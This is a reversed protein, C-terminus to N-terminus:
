DAEDEDSCCHQFIEIRQEYLKRFEADMHPLMVRLVNLMSETWDDRIHPPKVANFITRFAFYPAYGDEDRPWALLLADIGRVHCMSAMWQAVAEWHAETITFECERDRCLKCYFQWVLHQQEKAESCLRWCPYDALGRERLALAALEFSEPDDERLFNSSKAQNAAPVSTSEAGIGSGGSRKRKRKPKRRAQPVAMAGRQDQVPPESPEDGDMRELSPSLDFPENNGGMHHGLDFGLDLDPAPAEDQYYASASAAPQEGVQPSEGQAAPAAEDQDASGGVGDYQQQQQQPRPPSSEDHYADQAARREEVLDILNSCSTKCLGSDMFTLLMKATALVASSWPPRSQHVSPLGSNFVDTVVRQQSEHDGPWDDFLEKLGIEDTNEVLSYAQTWLGCLDFRRPSTPQPVACQSGDGVVDADLSKAQKAAKTPASGGRSNNKRKRKPKRRAQPVAMASRQDQIPPESPENDDLAIGVSKREEKKVSQPEIAGSANVMYENAFMLM